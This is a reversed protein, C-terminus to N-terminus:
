NQLIFSAPAIGFHKKFVRSFYAPDSFGYSYATEAVNGKGQKLYESALNLKIMCIFNSPTCNFEKQMIRQLQRASIGAIRALENVQIKEDVKKIIYDTLKQLIIQNSDLRNVIDPPREIFLVKIEPVKSARPLRRYRYVKFYLIISFASILVIFAGLWVIMNELTSHKLQALMGPEGKLRVHKWYGPYGYDTYGAQNICPTLQYHYFRSTDIALLTDPDNNCLDMRFEMDSYPELGISNFPISIEVTFGKDIDKDNNLSGEVYVAKYILINTSVDKTILITDIKEVYISEFGRFFVIHNKIDILFQYDNLDMELRKSDFKTDIYIEVADNNNINSKKERYPFQAYLHSDSIQFAMNLCKLNWYAKVRIKNASRPIFSDFDLDETLAEVYSIESVTKFTKVSNSFSFESFTTWDDLLGDVNIERASFPIEWIENKQASLIFGFFLFFVLFLFKIPKAVM